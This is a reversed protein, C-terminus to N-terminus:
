KNNIKIYEVKKPAYLIIENDDKDTVKVAPGAQKEVMTGLLSHVIALASNLTETAEDQARSVGDATTAANIANIQNHLMEATYADSAGHLLATIASIAAEKEARCKDKNIIALAEARVNQVTAINADTVAADDAVDNIIKVQAEVAAKEDEALTAEQMAADIDELAKTKYYAMNAVIWTFYTGWNSRFYTQVDPVYVPIDTPVGNFVQQGTYGGLAPPTTPMAYISKLGTCDYFAYMDIWTVSNPITLSTLGTCGQFAYRGISEVGNPITLSTLGTCGRFADVGISEVSNPMTLSTLGTCGQFAGAGISKVGNLITVSILGTCGAFASIGISGSVTISTLGTCGEFASAGVDKVSGEVTITGTVGKLVDDGLICGDKLTISTLNTCGAFAKWGISGSVTISTLGTCGEFASEGVDKVSGEVTITGTVGNLAYDGLICGDKLTISTLGTCGAFADRGISGSVTISTLGTCGAFAGVGVDKVSGEVTITGTVGKLADFGLICGDKLTISTLGICGAFADRGISGSVTISTLGTCGQFAREGVDKVSGKVTITGTFGNLADEGISAVTSPIVLEGVYGTCDLFANDGISTLGEPLSVSTLNTCTRFANKGISTVDYAVGAYTISSPVSIDGVYDATGSFAENGGWTVSATHSADDLIFYMYKGAEYEVKTADPNAAKAVMMCCLAAFLLLTKKM